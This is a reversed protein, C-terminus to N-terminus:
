PTVPKLETEMLLKYDRQFPFLAKITRYPQGKKFYMFLIHDSNLFEELLNISPQGDSSPIDPHIRAVCSEQDCSNFDLQTMANKDVASKWQDGDKKTKAFTIILGKLHDANAPVYFAFYAPKRDSRNIAVGITIFEPHKPDSPHDPDGVLIDTFMMCGKDSCKFDWKGALAEIPDIPATKETQEPVTAPKPSAAAPEQSFAFDGDFVFLSAILVGAFMVKKLLIPM